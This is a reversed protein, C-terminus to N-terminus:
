IQRPNSLFDRVLAEADRRLGMQVGAGLTGLATESLFPVRFGNLKILGVALTAAETRVRIESHRVHAMLVSFVEEDDGHSRLRFLAHLGNATQNRNFVGKRLAGLLHDYTPKGIRMEDVWDVTTTRDLKRVLADLQKKM